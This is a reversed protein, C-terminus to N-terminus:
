HDDRTDGPCNASFDDDDKYRIGCWYCFRYSTRLYSTLMELKEATTYDEEQSTDNPEVNVQPTDNVTEDDAENSIELREPWFWKLDPEQLGHETDLTECSLQCRKLAAVAFREDARQQTRKRFEEVTVVDGGTLKKRLQQEHIQRQREKLDRLATERGLGGRDTKINIGIPETLRKEVETCTTERGLAQGPKYGMRALMQFGKNQHEIPRNLSEQLAKQDIKGSRALSEQKQRKTQEKKREEMALQRKKNTQQILSPRVDGSLYKDSMYDDEEDSM